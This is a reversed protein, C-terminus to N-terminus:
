VASSSGATIRSLLEYAKKGVCFLKVEKGNGRLEAIKRKTARTISSNFAGCLGRDSTM